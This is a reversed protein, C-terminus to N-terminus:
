IKAWGNTMSIDSKLINYAKAIFGPTFSASGKDEVNNMIKGTSDVRPLIWGIVEACPFMEPRTSVKTIGSRLINDYLALYELGEEPVKKEVLMHYIKGWKFEPEAGTVPKTDEYILEVRVTPSSETDSDCDVIKAKKKGKKMM